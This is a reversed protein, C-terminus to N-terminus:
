LRFGRNPDYKALSNLRKSVIRRPVGAIIIEVDLDDDATDDNNLVKHMATRSQTKKPKLIKRKRKPEPDTSRSQILALDSEISSIETSIKQLLATQQNLHTTIGTLGFITNELDTFCDWPSKLTNTNSSQSTLSAYFSNFQDTPHNRVQVNM